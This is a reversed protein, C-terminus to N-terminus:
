AWRQLAMLARASPSGVVVGTARECRRGGGVVRLCSGGWDSREEKEFGEM